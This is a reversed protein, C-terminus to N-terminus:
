KDHLKDQRDQKEVFLVMDEVDYPVNKVMEHVYLQHEAFLSLIRNREKRISRGCDSFMRECPVSTALACGSARFLDFLLPLARVNEWFISPFFDKTLKKSGDRLLKSGLERLSAFYSELELELKCEITGMVTRDSAHKCAEVLVNLRSVTEDDQDEEHEQATEEEVAEDLEVHGCGDVFFDPMRNMMKKFVRTLADVLMFKRQDPTQSPDYYSPTSLYESVINPSLLINMLAFDDRDKVFRYFRNKAHRFVSDKLEQVNLTPPAEIGMSQEPEEETEKEQLAETVDHTAIDDFSEADLNNEDEDEDEVCMAGDDAQGCDAELELLIDSLLQKVKVCMMGLTSYHEGSLVKTLADFPSLLKILFDLDSDAPFPVTHKKSILVEHVYPQLLRYRKLMELTSGWRTEVSGILSLQTRGDRVQFNTLFTHASSQPDRIFDVAKKIPRIIARVDARELIAVVALQIGHAACRHPNAYLSNRTASFFLRSMRVVNAGNDTVMQVVLSTDIDKEKLMTMLCSLLNGGNHSVGDFLKIGLPVSVLACSNVDVYHATVGLYSKRNVKSSWGDVTLTLAQGKMRVKCVEIFYKVM